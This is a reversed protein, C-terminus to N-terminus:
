SELRMLIMWDPDVAFFMMRSFAYNCIYKILDDCSIWRKWRVKHLGAVRARTGRVGGIKTTLAIRKIFDIILLRSPSYCPVAVRQLAPTVHQANIRRLCEAARVCGMMSDRHRTVGRGWVRKCLESTTYAHEELSAHRSFGVCFLGVHDTYISTPRLHLSASANLLTLSIISFSFEYCILQSSLEIYLFCLLKVCLTLLM